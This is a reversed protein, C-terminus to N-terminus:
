YIINDNTKIIIPLENNLIRKLSYNINIRYNQFNNKNKNRNPSNLYNKNKYRKKNKNNNFEYDIGFDVKKCVYYFFTEENNLSLGRIFYKMKEEESYDRYKNFQKLSKYLSINNYEYKTKKDLPSKILYNLNFDTKQISSNSRFMKKFKERNNNIKQAKTNSNTDITLSKTKRKLYVVNKEEPNFTIILNKSNAFKSPYKETKDKKKYKKFHLFSNYTKRKYLQNLNDKLLKLKSTICMEKKSTYNEINKHLISNMSNNRIKM